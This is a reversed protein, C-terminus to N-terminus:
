DVALGEAVLDHEATAVAALLRPWPLAIDDRHAWTWGCTGGDIDTIGCLVVGVVKGTRIQELLDEVAAVMDGGGPILRLEPTNM